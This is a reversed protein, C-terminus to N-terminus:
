LALIIKSESEKGGLLDNKGKGLEEAGFQEKKKRRWM